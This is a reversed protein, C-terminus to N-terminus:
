FRDARISPGAYRADIIRGRGRQYHWGKHVKYVYDHEYSVRELTPSGGRRNCGDEIERLLDRLTRMPIGAGDSLRQLTQKEDPHAAVYAFLALANDSTRTM